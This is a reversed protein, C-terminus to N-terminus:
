NRQRMPMKNGGSTNWFSRHSTMNRFMGSYNGSTMAPIASISNHMEDRLTQMTGSNMGEGQATSYAIEQLSQGIQGMMGRYRGVDPTRGNMVVGAQDGMLGAMRRATGHMRQYGEKHSGSYSGFIYDGMMNMEGPMDLQNRVKTMAEALTMGPNAELTERLLTSIPSIFNKVTGTTGTASTESVAVAHMSLVYTNAVKQEPDDLDVTQDKIALAVIPYKGQDSPDINLTFSGTADTTTEPEGQDLQYNANKDLFVQANVLYGDAVRGSVSTTTTTMHGGDGGGSCGSLTGLCFLVAAGYGRLKM